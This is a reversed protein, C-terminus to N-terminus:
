NAVYVNTDLKHLWTIYRLYNTLMDQGILLQNIKDSLKISLLDIKSQNNIYEVDNILHTFKPM